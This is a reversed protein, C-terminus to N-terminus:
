AIEIVVLRSMLVIDAPAEKYTFWELGDGCWGAERVAVGVPPVPEDLAGPVGPAGGSGGRASVNRVEAFVRLFRELTCASLPCATFTEFLVTPRMSAMIRRAIPAFGLRWFYKGVPMGAEPAGLEPRSTGPSFPGDREDERLGDGDGDGRSTGGGYVAAPPSFLPPYGGSLGASGGRRAVDGAGGSPFSALVSGAANAEYWGVACPGGGGRGSRFSLVFSWMRIEASRMRDVSSSEARRTSSAPVSCIPLTMPCLYTQFTSCTHASSPCQHM